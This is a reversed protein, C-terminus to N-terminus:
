SDRPSPSTYLLCVEPLGAQALAIVDMYGEVLIVRGASRIAERALALGYLTRGKHFLATEPGNVYKPAAGSSGAADPLVRGGFSVVRGRMDTIPFVIRDRFRDFVGGRQRELLLGAALAVDRAIGVGGLHRALADGSAPAWGLGFRESSEASVGRQRLYSRARAGQAGRLMGRYFAAAVALAEALPESREARGELTEPVAMGVRQAVVRVAEPFSLSQAKMVFAFVDGHEGCGFCHYFGREESVTFSPTKEAHFPCLGVATRGRRRLSVVDSVVETLSARERIARIAEDPIRGSM